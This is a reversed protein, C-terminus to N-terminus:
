WEKLYMSRMDTYKQDKTINLKTSGIEKQVKILLEYIDDEINSLVLIFDNDFGPAPEPM